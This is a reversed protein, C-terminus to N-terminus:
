YISIIIKIKFNGFIFRQLLIVNLTQHCRLAYNNRRCVLCKSYVVIPGQRWFYVCIQWKPYQEVLHGLFIMTWCFQLLCTDLKIRGSSNSTDSPGQM